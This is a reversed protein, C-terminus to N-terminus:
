GWMDDTSSSSIEENFSPDGLAEFDNEADVRGSFREGDRVKQLNQLGFAVGRNGARDYAYCTVTARAYCGAYFDDESIIKQLNQDVVGPRMKSKANVFLKGAYEKKDPHEVDGDRFPNRLGKPREADNPWKEKLAKAALQKLESIDTKKDFLMSVSYKPEQGEFARSQFVAPFSVRFEPTTVKDM